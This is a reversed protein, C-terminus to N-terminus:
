TSPPVIKAQSASAYQQVSRFVAGIDRARLAQRVEARQWAWAPMDTPVPTAAM